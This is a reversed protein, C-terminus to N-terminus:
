NPSNELAVDSNEDSDSQEHKMNISLKNSKQKFNHKSTRMPSKVEKADIVFNNVAASM